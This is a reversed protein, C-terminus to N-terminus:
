TEGCFLADYANVIKDITFQRRVRDRNATGLRQREEGDGLLRVLAATFAAEDRAPLVLHRNDEALMNRVDGVDTAVIPLGAAM